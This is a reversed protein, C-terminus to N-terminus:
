LGHASAHTSLRFSQALSMEGTSGRPSFDINDTILVTRHHELARRGTQSLTIKIQTRRHARVFVVHSRAWVIEPQQM